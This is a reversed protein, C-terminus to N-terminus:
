RKDLNGSVGTAAVKLAALIVGGWILPVLNGLVFCLVVVTLIVSLVLEGVVDIM